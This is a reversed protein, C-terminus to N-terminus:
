FFTYIFSLPSSIFGGERASRVGKVQNRIAKRVAKRSIVAREIDIITVSITSRSVIYNVLM